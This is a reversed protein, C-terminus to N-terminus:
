SAWSRAVAAVALVVVALWNWHDVGLPKLVAVGVGALALVGAVLWQGARRALRPM